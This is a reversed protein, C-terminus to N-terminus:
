SIWIRVLLVTLCVRIAQGVVSFMRINDGIPLSNDILAHRIKEAYELGVALKLIPWITFTM